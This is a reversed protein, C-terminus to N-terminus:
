WRLAALRDRAHGAAGQVAPGAPAQLPPPLTATPRRRLPQLARGWACRVAGSSVHSVPRIGVRFLKRPISFFAVRTAANLLAQHRFFFAPAALPVAVQPLAIVALSTIAAGSAVEQRLKLTSVLYQILCALVGIMLQRRIAAPTAIVAAPAAPAAAARAARQRRAVSHRLVVLVLAVSAGALPLWPELRPDRM